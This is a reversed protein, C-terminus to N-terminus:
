NLEDMGISESFIVDDEEKNAEGIPVINDEAHRIAVAVRVNYKKSNAQDISEVIDETYGIVADKEPLSEPQLDIRAQVLNPGEDYRLYGLNYVDGQPSGEKMKTEIEEKIQEVEKDSLEGTDEGTDGGTDEGTDGGCAVMIVAVGILMLLVAIRKLM